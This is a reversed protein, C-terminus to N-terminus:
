FFLSLFCSLAVTSNLFPLPLLELAGKAAPKTTLGPILGLDEHVSTLNKVQHAVM